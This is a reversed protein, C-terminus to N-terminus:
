DELFSKVAEKANNLIPAGDGVLLIKFEFNLLKNLENKALVPDRYKDPTLMNLKGPVKGILADGVIMVGRDKLFFASEGPSKQNEFEVTTLGGPLVDGDLFTKDATEELGASDKENVWVGAGFRKKFENSEREHHVNSLLIVKVPNESKKGVLSELEAIDKDTMRPPDILVSEGESVLFYGNFNLQKEESYEHWTYIGPLIEKM